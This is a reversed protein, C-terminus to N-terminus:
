NQNHLLTLELSFYIMESFLKLIIHSHYPPNAFEIGFLKHYTCPLFVSASIEVNSTSIMLWYQGIGQVNTQTKLGDSRWISDASFRLLFLVLNIRKECTAQKLYICISSHSIKLKYLRNIIQLM